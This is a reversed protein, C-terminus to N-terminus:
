PTDPTPTRRRTRISRRVALVWGAGVCITFIFWQVAYSLHPGEGLEPAIVAEPGDAAEPPRSSMLDIYIPVAPGPLQPQLRPIDIRQVETLDGSEPDAIEIHQRQRSPHLRGVVTVDGRPPDPVVADLGVFGRNVLLIRRDALQLPTVVDDGPRGNQSRNVVLFQEDPLYVGSATVPQWEADKPDGISGLVEDLPLPVADYRAEVGANFAQRQDLRRLQWLGLNVMAVMGVVVLLHFGLWKPRFLFRYMGM